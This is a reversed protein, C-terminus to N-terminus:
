AAIASIAEADAAALAEAAGPWDRSARGRAAARFWAPIRHAEAMVNVLAALSNLTKARDVNEILWEGKAENVIGTPRTQWVVYATIAEVFFPTWEPAKDAVDRELAFLASAEEQTVIDDQFITRRLFLVDEASVKGRDLMEFIAARGGDLYERMTNATSCIM